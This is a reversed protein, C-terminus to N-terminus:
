LSTNTRCPILGPNVEGDWDVTFPLLSFKRDGIAGEQERMKRHFRRFVESIDSSKFAHADFIARPKKLLAELYQNLVTIIQNREYSRFHEAIM